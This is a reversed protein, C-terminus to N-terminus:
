RSNDFHKQSKELYLKIQKDLTPRSIQLEKALESKSIERRLYRHYYTEFDPISVAKRGKYIGKRKAIAIGEKQRELLNAREFENIAAIMTLMLKGTPTSTDLNEKNSVLNIKKRNFTDVLDLLDKTSRALRSFDHIYITDGERAFELLNQLEPRNTDKASAKETFWKEINYKELGEIQREENQEVTSVRVYALRM